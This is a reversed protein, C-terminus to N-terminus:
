LEKLLDVLGEYTRRTNVERDSDPPAWHTELSICGDFPDGQLAELQAGLGVSGDGIREWRTLGTEVDEVVADKLHVHAVFPRVAKYGVEAADKEGSVYANAPDWIARLSSSGIRELLKGTNRGSDCWCSRVNELAVVLGGDKALRVAPELGAAVRDVMEDPFAGGWPLRPSPNGLGVMGERRFSFVRVLPAGFFIAAEVSTRFLDMHEGYHPDSPIDEVDVSGLFVTKFAQTAVMRVRMGNDRLMDRADVLRGFPIEDINDGWLSGLEIEEIGMSRASTIVRAFDDGIEEAVLCLEFPFQGKLASWLQTVKSGDNM